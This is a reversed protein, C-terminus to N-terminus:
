WQFNTIVLEDVMRRATSRCAILSQRQLTEFNFKRYLNLISKHYANSMIVYCGRKNLEQFLKALNIQDDWSFIKSNYKIFGNNEHAVTYPPDLYVLDGKQCDRLAQVFGCSKITANALSRSARLLNDEDFVKVRGKYGYPVNFKGARNVRYLGNWCTKNLFIFRAALKAESTLKADRQLYYAEENRPFRKLHRIVESVNTKIQNFTLILEENIDSLYAKNPKIAFFVTGAGLFPEFYRNYNSPLKGILKKVLWRKGGAWKLFPDAIDNATDKKLEHLERTKM